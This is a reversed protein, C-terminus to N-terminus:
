DGDIVIMVGIFAVLGGVLSGVPGALVISAIGRALVSPELIPARMQGIVDIVGGIFLVWAGVYFGLVVGAVIIAFGFIKRVM